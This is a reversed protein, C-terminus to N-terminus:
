QPLEHNLVIPQEGEQGPQRMAHQADQERQSAMKERELQLKMEELNMHSARDAARDASELAAVQAEQQRDQAKHAADAQMEVMKAENQQQQQQGKQQLAALKTPDPPAAPKPPPVQAAAANAANAALQEPSLLLSEPSSTNITQLIRENVARMDYLTPNQQAVLALAWAGLIRATQSPINPDSAPVLNLDEFESATEWKRAPDRALRWLDEPNAVFLERIKRLEEKQSRHNRKHVGAMIQTQQEIQAMITGVPVNTRGEGVELMVQGGLRQAGEEIMQALQMFVADVSKYPMAMLIQRIDTGWPAEIDIWEGPAPAIENTSTRAGKIKVGGPFNSFMGADILLRWIARLARTHNGLIQLFGWDHFFGITPILGYRVYMNQKRYFRDGDEWNRWIGLVQRTDKDLTVKYPLPLGPPATAEFKGVIHHVMTDLDVDTEWLIYPTDQPRSAMGSIGEAAKVAATGAPVSAQSWGLDIDRYRGAIQMRRLQSRTTQIQHTVRIANQLDTAEESVILDLMSVSESVPRDRMPCRYIKKFGNGCYGQHMLMRSTDPYFETAIETLFFNFDSEFDRALQEEETSVQGITEVKAPGSAPLLEAEAGAHFKIMSELLLPHGIRSISRGTSAPTSIDEIRTGLLEIGKEYQDILDSRTSIDSDVGEIIEDAISALVSDDLREALNAGFEDDEMPDRQPAPAVIAVSGDAYVSVQTGDDTELEVTGDGIGGGGDDPRNPQSPGSGSQPFEVVNDSPDAM